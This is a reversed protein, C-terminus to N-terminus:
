VNRGDLFIRVFLQQKCFFPSEQPFFSPMTKVEIEENTIGVDEGDELKRRKVPNDAVRREIVMRRAENIKVTLRNRFTEDKM